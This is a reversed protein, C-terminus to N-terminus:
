FLSDMHKVESYLAQLLLNRMPLGFTARFSFTNHAGFTMYSTIELIEKSCNYVPPVTTTRNKIVIDTICVATASAVCM